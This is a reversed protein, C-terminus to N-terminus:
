PQEAKKILDRCLDRLRSPCRSEANAKISKVDDLNLTEDIHQLVFHRFDAHKSALHAFRPLTQWHDVLIRAVSESYGESIAGDDCQWYITYSKYLDRWSRLTDAQFEARQAQDDNCQPQALGSSVCLAIVVIALCKTPAIAKM